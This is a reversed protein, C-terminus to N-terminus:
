KYPHVRSASPEHAHDYYGSSSNHGTSAKKPLREKMQWISTCFLLGHQRGAFVGERM